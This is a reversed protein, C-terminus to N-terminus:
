GTRALWTTVEKVITRTLDEGDTTPGYSWVQRRGAKSALGAESLARGLSDPIWMEAIITRQVSLQFFSLLVHRGDNLTGHYELAGYTRGAETDLPDIEDLVFSTTELLRDLLAHLPAILDM